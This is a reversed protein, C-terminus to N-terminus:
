ESFEKVWQNGSKVAISFEGSELKVWKRPRYGPSCTLQLARNATEM